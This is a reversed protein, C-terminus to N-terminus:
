NRKSLRKGMLPIDDNGLDKRKQKRKLYFAANKQELM